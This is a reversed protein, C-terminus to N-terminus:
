HIYAPADSAPFSQESASAVADHHDDSRVRSAGTSQGETEPLVGAEIRSKLRKLSQRIWDAAGEIFPPPGFRIEVRVETGRDGAADEFRISGSHSMAQGDVSRWAILENERMQVLEADLELRTGEATTLIWHSRNDEGATAEVHQIVPILNALDRWFRYVQERPLNITIAEDISTAAEPSKAASSIGLAQYTYCFGTLGRRLFAVGLLAAGTGVWGKTKLGRALLLSGAM